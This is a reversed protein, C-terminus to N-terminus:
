KKVHKTAPLKTPLAIYSKTEDYTGRPVPDGAAIQSEVRTSNSSGVTTTTTSYLVPVSQFESPMRVLM